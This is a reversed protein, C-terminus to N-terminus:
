IAVRVDMTRMIAISSSRHRWDKSSRVKVTFASDTLWCPPPPLPGALVVSVRIKSPVSVTAWRTKGASSNQCDVQQTLNNKSTKQGTKKTQKSSSSSAMSVRLMTHAEISDLSTLYKALFM